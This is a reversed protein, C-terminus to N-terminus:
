IINSMINLCHKFKGFRPDKKHLDGLITILNHPKEELKEIKKLCQWFVDRFFNQAPAPFFDLKFFSVLHSKYFYISQALANRLSRGFLSQANTLFEADDREFSQSRVGYFSQTVLETAYKQFLIKANQEAPAAKMYSIMEDCVNEMIHFITKMKGSSFVPTLKDRALKWEPNPSFFLLSRILENHAPASVVRNQFHAFDKVLIQKILEPDRILLGPEDFAFIGVYPSEFSNYIEELITGFTSKLIISDWLNGVFFKPTPGSVGRKQWYDSNRKFYKYALFLVPVLIAVSTEVYPLGFIM